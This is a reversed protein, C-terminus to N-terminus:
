ASLKRIAAMVHRDPVAVASPHQVVLLSSFQIHRIHFTSIHGVHSGCCRGAWYICTATKPKVGVRPRTFDPLHASLFPDLLSM